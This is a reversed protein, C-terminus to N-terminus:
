SMLNRQCANWSSGQLMGRSGAWWGSVRCAQKEVLLSMGLSGCDANEPHRRFARM